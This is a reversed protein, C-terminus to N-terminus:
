LEDETEHSRVESEVIAKELRKLDQLVVEVSLGTEDAIQSITLGRGWALAVPTRPIAGPITEGKSGSINHM